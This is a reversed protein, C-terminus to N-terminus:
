CLLSSSVVCPGSNSCSSSSHCRAELLFLPGNYNLLCCLRHETPNRSLKPVEPLPPTSPLGRAFGVGPSHLAESWCVHVHSELMRSCLLCPQSVLLLRVSHTVPFLHCKLCAKLQLVTFSPLMNWVSSSAPASAHLPVRGAFHSLGVHSSGCM